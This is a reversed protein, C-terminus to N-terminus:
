TEDEPPEEDAYFEVFDDLRLLMPALGVAAGTDVNIWTDRIIVRGEYEAGYMYTPTHGFVTIFDRSFETKRGVRCWLLEEETYESIKKGEAYNGLGSHVLVFDRGGVSVTDYLPAESIYELLMERVYQNVGTLGNITPTAGNNRWVNLLSLKRASLDRVSDDTVEDFLFSCSLMMAEHNGLILQVNRQRMMWRLLQVGEPGRDIVDGLVFLYDDKSFDAKRLLAQFKELPYGHLDSTVYVM